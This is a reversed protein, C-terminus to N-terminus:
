PSFLNDKLLTSRARLRQATDLRSTVAFFAFVIHILTQTTSVM